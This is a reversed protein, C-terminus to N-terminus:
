EKEQAKRAHEIIEPHERVWEAISELRARMASEVKALDYGMEAAQPFVLWLGCQVCQFYGRHTQLGELNYHVGKEHLALADPGYVFGDKTTFAKRLWRELKRYGEGQPGIEDRTYIRGGMVMGRHLMSRQFEFRTRPANPGGGGSIHLRWDEWRDTTRGLGDKPTYRTVSAGAAYVAELFAAEDAPGMFFNVQKVRPAGCGLHRELWWLRQAGTLRWGEGAAEQRPALAANVELSGAGAGGIGRGRIRTFPPVFAHGVRPM